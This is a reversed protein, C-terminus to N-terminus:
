PRTLGGAQAAGRAAPSGRVTGGLASYRSRLTNAAPGYLPSSQTYAEFDDNFKVQAKIPNTEALASNNGLWQNSFKALDQERQLKLALTDLLLKNGEVTKSLGASGTNIFKLDTDTPNVGLQKVQPLVIQTSFAQFAEQGALGKTNFNPDFLQGAQGLKLLTEQGFGTRVGEDLLTRMNEVAGITSAASRGARLNGTITETLAKGFGERMNVTVPATINTVPRKDAALAIAKKEVANLGEQGFRAFIKQPDTTQYLVNSANAMDGTFPTPKAGGSVVPKYEGGPTTPVSYIVEDQKVSITEPRTLKQAEALNKLEARGAPTRMLQASVRSIDFSPATTVGAGPMLQGEEDFQAAGSPTGYFTQQGAPVFAGQAIAQAQQQQLLAAAERQRKAAADARVLAEDSRVLAQQRAKEREMALMMAGQGDGVQRMIEIGRDFTTLDNPDLQGAIQQRATIRALEPDEGGLARGLAGGLQGAGRYIGYTARQMPNMGAFRIARAEATADQQQQYAEPTVGFLSQVIDTAM